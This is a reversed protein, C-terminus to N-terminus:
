SKQWKHKGELISFLLWETVMTPNGNFKKRKYAETIRDLIFIAAGISFGKANAIEKLYEKDFVLEQKDLYFTLMDRVVLELCSIFEETDIGSEAIKTSYELVNKSSQMNCLVDKVLAMLEFLKKDGYKSIAKGLTGDGCSVAKILRFEDTYEAKLTQYIKQKEFTPITLKKVRSKVTTLIPFESTAGILIHVNKPPEELTKLLKNQAVANATEFNSIVFLKKDEEIPKLFSEEIINEVDESCITEKKPYFHVDAFNESDILRCTRCEGCPNSSECMILKAFIKLYEKLFTKDGCVLMYAHSLRGHIKDGYVSKYAATDSILGLLDIM